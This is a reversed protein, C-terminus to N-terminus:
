ATAGEPLPEPVPADPHLLGQAKLESWFEAPICEGLLRTTHQVQAPTALGAIVRSVAPHALPFQLAAAALTVAYRDCVSEIRAVRAVIEDPAPVYNYYVAQTTRTGTALIGSNYAGGILLRTGRRQCLPLFHQLSEQELLTYRGALLFCDYDGYHLAQACADVENVGLGIAKVQGSDRLERLARYGSDVLASFHAANAEGHTLAGIDHVLLIDIRDLGLRQLSDEHSRLIGDYSYDYRIDFPMPSHFGHRERAHGAPVLLRGAKTSLLYQDRPKDRLADGVRRESLGQGYHPATDFLRIGANWASDLTAAAQEDPMAQYLNGLSAAGFGIRDLRGAGPAHPSVTDLHM